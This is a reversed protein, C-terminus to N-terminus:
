TGRGAFVSQHAGDHASDRTSPVMFAADKQKKKKEESHERDLFLFLLLFSPASGFQM